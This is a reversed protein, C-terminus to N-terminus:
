SQWSKHIQKLKETVASWVLASPVWSGSTSVVSVSGWISVPLASPVFPASLDSVVPFSFVSSQSNNKSPNYYMIVDILPFVKRAVPGKHRSDVGTSEGVFSLSASIQHKRGDAGSCVASCLVWVGTTQSANARMTVDTYHYTYKHPNVGLISFRSSQWSALKTTM